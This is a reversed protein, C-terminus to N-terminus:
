IRFGSCCGVLRISVPITTAVGSFMFSGLIWLRSFGGIAFYRPSSYGGTQSVRLTPAYRAVGPAGLVSRGSWCPMRRTGLCCLIGTQPTARLPSNRFRLGIRWTSAGILDLAEASASEARKLVSAAFHVQIGARRQPHQQNARFQGRQTVTRARLIARSQLFEAIRGSVARLPRQWPSIAPFCRLQCELGRRQPLHKARPKRRRRDAAPIFIGIGALTEVSTDPHDIRRGLVAPDAVNPRDSSAGDVNGVGPSDSGSRLTFPTGSKLLVISSFQWRGFIKRLIRNRGSLSPTEYNLRWLMAHPQDFNSLGRMQGHIDFESPARGRRADRGSATNTYDSGLDIAKSFWYSADVTLGAWRPIRLTVKAADFYGRSGNLIQLVEFFRPDPRRENVNESLQPIGEIQRARNLYWASLLKHSRSGVYGLEVTWDSFAKLEWSFNYQHSYPSALEPDLVRIDSRADSNLDSAALGGLPNVLDPARIDISLIEPPNFRSQMFTSQFIEGYQIGYAGRIVGWSDNLRYAFGFRPALNNCDCDYPIDSLGNVESAATVPSYRLGLNLTLNGSVKWEDGVFFQMDWNRFGRHADGIAFRYSSPTGM